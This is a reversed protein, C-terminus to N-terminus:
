QKKLNSVFDELRSASAKLQERDAAGICVLALSSGGPLDSTWTVLVFSGDLFEKEFHKRFEHQLCRPSFSYLLAESLGRGVFHSRLCGLSYSGTVRVNLDIVLQSGDESVIIDVGAPGYYGKSHLFIAVQNIIGSFRRELEPQEPYSMTGGSWLGDNDLAQNCCGNFIARGRQTIFMTLGMTEGPIFEQIALSCPVLHENLPTVEQLMKRVETQLVAIASQRQAETRIIFTGLSGVTQPVKVIFPLERDYIERIMREVEADIQEETDISKSEIITTKPTPLGSYALGRKSLLDYHIEPDVIHPLHALRDLPNLTVAETASPLEIDEPNRVFSLNPRQEASLQDFIASADLHDCNEEPDADNQGPKSDFFIVPMKGAVFSMKLPINHLRRKGVADPDTSPALPTQYMFKKSAPSSVTGESRPTPYAFIAVLNSADGDQAYLEALTRDLVIGEM